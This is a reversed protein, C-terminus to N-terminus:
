RKTLHTKNQKERTMGVPAKVVAVDAEDFAKWLAAQQNRKAGWGRMNKKAGPKEPDEM